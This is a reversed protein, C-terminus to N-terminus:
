QKLPIIQQEIETALTLTSAAANHVAAETRDKSYYHLRNNMAFLVKFTPHMLEIKEVKCM